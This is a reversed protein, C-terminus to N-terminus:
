SDNTLASPRLPRRTRFGSTLLRRYSRDFIYCLVRKVTRGPLADIDM